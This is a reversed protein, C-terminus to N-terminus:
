AAVGLREITFAREFVEFTKTAGAIAEAVRLHDHDEGLIARLEVFYVGLRSDELFRQPGAQGKKRRQQLMTRNGMSSGAIVWVAGLAEFPSGFAIDEIQSSPHIGLDDLDLELLKAQSPPTALGYPPQGQLAKEVALRARHQARLFAGYDADSSLPMHGVTEDLRAHIDGTADRL